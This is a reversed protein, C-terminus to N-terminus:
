KKLRNERWVRMLRAARLAAGRAEEAGAKEAEEGFRKEWFVWREPRLGAERGFLSGARLVRRDADSLEPAPDAALAEVLIAGAYEIYVAATTLSYDLEATQPAHAEELASRLMWLPQNAYHVVGAGLLRACFAHFRVWAEHIQAQEKEVGSHRPGNLHERTVVAFVPLNAWPGPEWAGAGSKPLLTLDRIVKVLKDQAPHDHPIQEAVAIVSEWLGFLFGEDIEDATEGPAAPALQSIAAATHAASVSGGPRLYASFIGFVDNRILVKGAQDMQQLAIGDAM